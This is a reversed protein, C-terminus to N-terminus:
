FVFISLLKTSVTNVDSKKKKKQYQSSLLTYNVHVAPELINELFQSVFIRNTIQPKFGRHSSTIPNKHSKLSINGKSVTTYIRCM